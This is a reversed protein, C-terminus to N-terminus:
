KHKVVIGNCLFAHSLYSTPSTIPHPLAIDMKLGVHSLVVEFQPGYDLHKLSVNNVM